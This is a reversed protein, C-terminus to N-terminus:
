PRIPSYPSRRARRSRSRARYGHADVSRKINFTGGVAGSSAVTLNGSWNTAFQVTTGAAYGYSLNALYRTGGVLEVTRSGNDTVITNGLSDKAKGNPEYTLVAGGSSSVTFNGGFRAVVPNNAATIAAETGTTQQLFTAEYGTAAVSGGSLVVGTRLYAPTPNFNNNFAGPQLASDLPNIQDVAIALLGGSKVTATTPANANGNTSTSAGKPTMFGLATLPEGVPGNWHFATADNTDASYNPNFQFPGVQLVGSEVSWVGGFVANSNTTNGDALVIKGGGAVHITTQMGFSSTTTNSVAAQVLGSTGGSTLGNWDHGVPSNPDFQQIYNNFALTDGSGVTTFYDDALQYTSGSSQSLILAPAQYSLSSNGTGKVGSGPYMDWFGLTRGTTVNQRVGVNVNDLWLTGGGTYSGNYGTYMNGSGLATYAQGPTGSTTTVRIMGQGIYTSGIDNSNAANTLTLTGSGMKTLGGANVGISDSILAGAAVVEGSPVNITPRAGPGVALPNLHMSNAMTGSTFNLILDSNDGITIVSPPGISSASNAQLTSASALYTIGSYSNGSDALTVLGGNTVKIFGSGGAPDGISGGAVTYANGSGSNTFIMGSPQVGAAAITVTKNAGSNDFATIDGPHFVTASGSLVFNPTTSTDWLGGSSSGSWTLNNPVPAGVTTISLSIATSSSNELLSYTWDPNTLGTETLHFSAPTIAKMDSPIAGSNSFTFLTLGNAITGLNNLNLNVQGTTTQGLVGGIAIHDTNFADFNFDLNSGANLALDGLVHFTPGSTLTFNVGLGVYGGNGAGSSDLFYGGGPLLTGGNAITVRGAGLSGGSVNAGSAFAVSDPMGIAGGLRSGGITGGSNVLVWGTGTASNAANSHTYSSVGFVTASLALGYGNNTQGNGQGDYYAGGNSAFLMGGDVTTGGYYTNAETLPVGPPASGQNALGLTLSAYNGSVLHLAINDTTSTSVSKRPSSTDMYTRGIVGHFQSEVWNNSSSNMLSLTSLSPSTNTVGGFYDNQTSGVNIGITGISALQQNHGGLDFVGGNGASQYLGYILNTTIPLANDVGLTVFPMGYSDGGPNRLSSTQIFTDGTYNCTATLLLTARGNNNAGTGFILDGNGNIAGVQM